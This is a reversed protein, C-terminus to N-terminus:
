KGEEKLEKLKYYVNGYVQRDASHRINTTLYKELEDIIKNLRAIEEELEMIYETIIIVEKLDNKIEIKDVEKQLEKLYKNLKSMVEYFM